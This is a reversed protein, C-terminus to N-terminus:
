LFRVSATASSNAGSKPKFHVTLKVRLLGRHRHLSALGARTLKVKLTLRGAKTAKRTVKTLHAGGLTISGAGPVQLVITAVNGKVKHSVIKIETAAKPSICFAVYGLCGPPRRRPQHQGSMGLAM